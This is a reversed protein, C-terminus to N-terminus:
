KWNNFNIIFPLIISAKRSTKIISNKKEFIIFLTDSFVNHLSSGRKYPGFFHSEFYDMWFVLLHFLKCIKLFNPSILVKHCEKNCVMTSHFTSWIADSLLSHWFSTSHPIWFINTFIYMSLTFNKIFFMEFSAYQSHQPMPSIFTIEKIKQCVCNKSCDKM